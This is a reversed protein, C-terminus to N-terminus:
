EEEAESPQYISLVVGNDSQEGDTLTGGFTKSSISYDKWELRVDKQSDMAMAIAERFLDRIEERM